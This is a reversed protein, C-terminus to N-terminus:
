WPWRPGSSCTRAVASASIVAGEPEHRDDPKIEFIRRRLRGAAIAAVISEGRRSGVVPALRVAGGGPYRSRQLRAERVMLRPAELPGFGEVALRERPGRIMGFRRMKKADDSELAALDRRCQLEDPARQRRQRVIRLRMEIIAIRQSGSMSEGFRNFAIPAGYRELGIEPHRVAIEGRRQDLLIRECFSQLASPAGDRKQGIEGARLKVIRGRQQTEPAVGLGLRRQAAGESQARRKRRREEIEAHRELQM